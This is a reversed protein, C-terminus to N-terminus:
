TLLVIKGLSQSFDVGRPRVHWLPKRRFKHTNYEHYMYYVLSRLPLPACLHKPPDYNTRKERVPRSVVLPEWQQPEAADDWGTWM